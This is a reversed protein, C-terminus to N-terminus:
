EGRPGITPHVVVDDHQGLGAARRGEDNLHMQKDKSGPVAGNGLYIIRGDIILVNRGGWGHHSRPSGDENPLDSVLPVDGRGAQSLKRYRGNKVFGLAYAYTGGMTKRMRALEEGSAARIQELTPFDSDKCNLNSDPCVLTRPDDLFGASYLRPGVIGAAAFNGSEDAVPLVGKNLDAYKAVAHYTNTLKQQCAVREANSRSQNIAPFVVALAAVLIGAATGMDAFRWGRATAPAERVPRPPLSVADAAAPPGPTSVARDVFVMDITRHALGAPADYHGRDSELYALGRRLVELDDRLQHNTRLENELQRQEHPELAELLYGLLESRM